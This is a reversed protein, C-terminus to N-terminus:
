LKKGESDYRELTEWSGSRREAVAKLKGSPHYEKRYVETGDECRGEERLVGTDYFRKYDGERKGDKYTFEAKPKGSGDYFERVVGNWKDAVYPISKEVTGDTFYIIEEGNKKDDKYSTSREPKGSKRYDVCVGDKKGDKYATKSRPTGDKWTETWEGDKLGNKYHSVRTFDGVNSVMYETWKGEPKGDKYLRDALMTGERDYRRDVGDEAGMKYGKETEVAGDQFFTKHVGDLKGATFSSQSQITQGDAYYRTRVGELKGENYSAEEKLANNKFHQYKGHYMGDKFVALIYESHYGDILRHSGDLPTKDANAQRFLMRGDGYNIVSVEDIQYVKDQAFGTLTTAGLLLTLFIKKM